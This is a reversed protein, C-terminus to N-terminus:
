CLEKMKIMGLIFHNMQEYGLVPSHVTGNLSLFYKKNTKRKDEQHYEIVALGDLKLYNVANELAEIETTIM